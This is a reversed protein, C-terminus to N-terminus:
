SGRCIFSTIFHVFYFKVVLTCEESVFFSSLLETTTKPCDNLVVVIWFSRVKELKNSVLIVSRQPRLAEEILEELGAIPCLFINEVGIETPL